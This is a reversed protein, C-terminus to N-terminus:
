KTGAVCAAAASGSVAKCVKGENCQQGAGWSANSWTTGGCALLTKSDTSCKLTDKVLDCYSGQGDPMVCRSITHSTTGTVFFSQCKAGANCQNEQFSGIGDQDVSCWLVYDAGGVSKCAFEDQKCSGGAGNPKVCSAKGNSVQCSTGSACQSQEQWTNYGYEDKASSSCYLIVNGRCSEDDRSPNCEKGQGPSSECAAVTAFSILILGASAITVPFAKM